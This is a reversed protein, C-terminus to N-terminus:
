LAFYCALPPEPSIRSGGRANNALPNDAGTRLILEEPADTAACVIRAQFRRPAAVVSTAPRWNTATQPVVEPDILLHEQVLVNLTTSSGPLPQSHLNGYFTSPAVEQGHALM